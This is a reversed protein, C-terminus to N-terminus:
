SRTRQDIVPRYKRYIPDRRCNRAAVIGVVAAAAFSIGDACGATGAAIAKAKKALNMRTSALKGCNGAIWGGLLDAMTSAM